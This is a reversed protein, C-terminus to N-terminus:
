ILSLAEKMVESHNVVNWGQGADISIKDSVNELLTSVYWRGPTGEYHLIWNIKVDEPANEPLKKILFLMPTYCNGFNDRGSVQLQHSILIEEVVESLHGHSMTQM